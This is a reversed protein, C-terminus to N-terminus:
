ARIEKMLNLKKALDENSYLILSEIIESINEKNCNYSKEEILLQRVECLLNIKEIFENNLVKGVERLLLKSATPSRGETSVSVTINEKEMVSMTIFDSEEKNNTM